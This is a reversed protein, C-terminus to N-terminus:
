KAKKAPAKKAATAPPAAKAAKPFKPMGVFTPTTEQLPGPTTPVGPLTTTM